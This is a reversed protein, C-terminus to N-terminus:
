HAHSGAYWFYGVTHHPKTKLYNNAPAENFGSIGADAIAKYIDKRFYIDDFTPSSTWFPLEAIFERFTTNHSIEWALASSGLSAWATPMQTQEPERRVKPYFLLFNSPLWYSYPAEREEGTEIDLFSFDFFQSGTPFVKELVERFPHSVIRLPRWGLTDPIFKISKPDLYNPVDYKQFDEDSISVTEYRWDQLSIPLEQQARKLEADRAQLGRGKENWKLNLREFVTDDSGLLAYGDADISPIWPQRKM